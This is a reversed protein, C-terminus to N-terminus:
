AKTPTLIEYIHKFLEPMVKENIRDAEAKNQILHSVPNKNTINASGKGLIETVAKLKYFSKMLEALLWSEEDTVTTAQFDPNENLHHIYDRRKWGKTAVDYREHQGTISTDWHSHSLIDSSSEPNSRNFVEIYGFGWYWGCDWNARELWVKKGDSRGLLYYDKGFGHRVEKKITKIEHNKMKVGGM